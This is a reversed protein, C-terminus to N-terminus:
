PVTEICAARPPIGCALVFSNEVTLTMARADINHSAAGSSAMAALQVVPENGFPGLMMLPPPAPVFLAVARANPVDEAIRQVFLEIVPDFATLPFPFATAVPLALAVPIMTSLTTLPAFLALPLPEAALIPILEVPNAFMWPLATLPPVLESLPLPVPPPVPLAVRRLLTMVPLEDPLELPVPTAPPPLAVSVFLMMLPPLEPLLLPVPPVVPLAKSALLMMLPPLEALLLPVPVPDPEATTELLTM